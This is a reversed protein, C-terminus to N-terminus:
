HRIGFGEFEGSPADWTADVQMVHAMGPGDHLREVLRELFARPGEAVVEVSTGSAMNCAYGSIPADQDRNLEEVVNRAFARYGVGQVHGHVRATLRTEPVRRLSMPSAPRELTATAAAPAGADHGPHAFRNWWKM